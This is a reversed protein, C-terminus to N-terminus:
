YSSEGRKEIPTRLTLEIHNKIKILGNKFDVVEVEDIRDWDELYQEPDEMLESIYELTGNLFENENTYHSASAGLETKLMDHAKRGLRVVHYAMESLDETDM